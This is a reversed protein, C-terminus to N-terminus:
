HQIIIKFTQNNKTAQDTILVYYVGNSFSSVDVIEKQSNVTKHLVVQGTSSLIKLSYQKALGAYEIVFHNKAPNPYLTYSVINLKVDLVVIASYQKGGDQDVTKLRYFLKPPLSNLQSKINLDTFSYNKNFSANGSATTTGVTIFHNGDISREIDFYDTNTESSTTWKTIVDDNQWAATFSILTVPLPTNVVFAMAFGDTVGGKFFNAGLNQSAITISAIGDDKGGKFFSIGLPENTSNALVIGDSIGGLFISAGLNQSLAVSNTSGDDTGGKMFSIGLSQSPNTSLVIGDQTGGKFINLGLVSSSAGALISGKGIGGKFQAKSNIPIIIFVFFLFKLLQLKLRM